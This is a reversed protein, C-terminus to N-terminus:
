NNGNPKNSIFIINISSFNMKLPAREIYSKRNFKAVYSPKISVRKECYTGDYNKSCVCQFSGTSTPVCQSEHVCPSDLCANNFLECNQGSYGRACVCESKISYVDNVLRCRARNACSNELCENHNCEHISAGNLIDVSPFSLDFIKNNIRLHQICGSFGNVM